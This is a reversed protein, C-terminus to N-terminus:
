RFSASYLFYKLFPNSYQSNFAATSLIEVIIYGYPILNVNASHPSLSIWVIMQDQLDRLAILDEFDSIADASRRQSSSKCRQVEWFNAAWFNAAILKLNQNLIIGIIGGGAGGAGGAGGGAGGGTVSDSPIMKGGASTRPITSLVASNTALFPGSNSCRTKASVDLPWFNLKM